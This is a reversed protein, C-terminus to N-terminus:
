GRRLRHYGGGQTSSVLHVLEREELASLGETVLAPSLSLLRSLDGASLGPENIIRILLQVAEASLGITGLDRPHVARQKSGRPSPPSRPKRSTTIPASGKVRRGGKRPRARPVPPPPAPRVPEVARLMDASDVGRLAFLRGPQDDLRAGVGYMVAAVHMCMQETDPCSCALSIQEPTPLLGTHLHLMAQKVEESLEGRLLEEVSGLQGACRVRLARWRPASLSQVDMTVKFVGSGKVMATVRGECIRLDELSANRLYIRGRALEDRYESFAGLHDCWAAGWFSSAV